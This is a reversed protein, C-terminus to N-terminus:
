NNEHVTAMFLSNNQQDNLKKMAMLKALRRTMAVSMYVDDVISPDAMWGDYLKGAEEFDTNAM